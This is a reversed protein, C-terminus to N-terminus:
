SVSAWLQSSPSTTQLIGTKAGCFRCANETINDVDNDEYDTADNINLM